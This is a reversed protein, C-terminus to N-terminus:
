SALRLRPKGGGGGMIGGILGLATEGVSAVIPALDFKGLYRTPDLNGVLDALGGLKVNELLSGVDLSGALNTLEGVLNGVDLKKLLGGGGELLDSLGPM